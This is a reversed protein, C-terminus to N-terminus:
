APAQPDRALVEAVRAKLAPIVEAEFWLHRRFWAINRPSPHPLPLLHPWHDRWAAARDSLKLGAAGGLHWRQAYQGLLITLEIDGLAAILRSRWLSACEPRPPLDGGKGTGPFCFGMPAIAFRTPDYFTERDVGLWDRLRVGSPDDFPRNKAHTIRGPAQGVILIRAGQGAQLIPRPGLPLDACARCARIEALLTDLPERAAPDDM